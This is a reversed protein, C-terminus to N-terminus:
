DRSTNLHKEELWHYTDLQAHVPHEPDSPVRVNNLNRDLHVAKVNDTLQLNVIHKIEEKIRENYIPFVVEVRHNLNRDMWDASGLYMENAGGHHFIFVRAHELYMDVIRTIKINESVGPVNPRLCCIGRIILQVKVGAQSAEYLKDIMEKEELNNVKIMIHAEEGNKAAEIERDIKSLFDSKINFQAVLLHEFNKPPQQKFQLFDFIYGLEETIEKDATLLGHDGYIRATKENFNGTSLFAIREVSGEKERTVMAVKAHVKLGPMSFIVEVGAEKMNEASRLNIAEDFRAKIEVFVFVKKGHRAANILANVIGSDSAVRYQTTRIETVNPDLAAENLFRIVYEYTQYPFHLIRDEELIAEIISSYSDIDAHPLQPLSNKELAPKLPNPFGFFDNFNHYRGGAVMDEKELLFTKRLYKLTKQPIKGDYLFRAPEGIQRISLHEKIKKVLDGHYEDEIQLDADRSLKISFCEEIVFGPFIQDLNLRVVDDLFMIYHHDDKDPLEIFRSFYHTPILVIAYLSKKELGSEDDELEEDFGRQKRTLRIALYLAKDRLFHVIKGKMLIEPHVYPIIERSFLDRIYSFQTEDKPLEQLLHINNEGLEPLIMERFIEGFEEQQRLVEEHITQLIKKPSLGLQKRKKKKMGLLSRISAVRVRFFEDLNSSYIALFKIREYLPLSLDRAEMLVRYNFSLWSLDRDIYLEEEIPTSQESSM